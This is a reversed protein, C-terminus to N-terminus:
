RDAGRPLADPQTELVQILAETILQHGGAHAHPNDPAPLMETVERGEAWSSLDCVVFGASRAIPLIRAGVPGGPTTPIPLYIWVAVIDRTKCEDVISQYVAQLLEDEHQLLRGRIAGPAMKPNIGAKKVTETLHPSPLELGDAVLGGLHVALSNFEDQHAFYYVADPDFGFVQRQIRVLRHSAWQKGVGFNLTEYRSTRDSTRANLRTELLRSFVEDDRVGYGMVVSSGVCAIRITGPSKHLTIDRDRMGFRNISTPNGDLETRVGPILEVLQYADARRSVRAFGEAQSRLSENKPSIAAILAGAQLGPANLDEYYGQLQDLADGASTNTRFDAIASSLDPGLMNGFSPLSVTLVLGLGVVHLAAKDRFPLAPRRWGTAIKRTWIVGIITGTIVFALMWMLVVVLGSAAGPRHIAGRVLAPFTPETWFAWFLSVLAFMGVTRAALSVAAPWLRPKRSPRRRADLVANAAVCLGAVLWLAADNATVPFSGLLWYMQWSHLLWTCLFVFCVGSTTAAALSSGRRRVAYFMPFFFVRSMFDKWYINIRRWIDTFSSALFFCHHTRPLDFGYLHLLGTILHFQGSVHLYLAYNTVMFLAIHPIDYLEYPRPVLHSSIYRYLLLHSLGCVIWTIGRQYVDWNNTSLRTERFTKFDVVPFLPFCINPLMFFYSVSEAWGPQKVATRNSYVYVILRFMFMSGLVPWIPHPWQTRCVVLLTAALVLLCMRLGFVVPLYCIGLLTGGIALLSIGNSPGLVFPICAVSLVAFFGLRFQPPLWAHVAFGGIMVCLVPLFHHHGEIDFLGVIGAVIGLQVMVLLFSAARGPPRCDGAKGDGFSSPQSDNHGSM